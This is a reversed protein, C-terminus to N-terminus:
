WMREHIVIKDIFNKFGKSKAFRDMLAKYTKKNM